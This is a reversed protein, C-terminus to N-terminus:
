DNCPILSTEGYYVRHITKTRRLNIDNFHCHSPIFVSIGHWDMATAMDVIILVHKFFWIFRWDKRRVEHKAVPMKDGVSAIGHLEIVDKVPFLRELGVLSPFCSVLEILRILLDYPM